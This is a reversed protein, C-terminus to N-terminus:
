GFPTFVFGNQITPAVLAVNEAQGSFDALVTARSVGANDIAGVWFNIGATEGARGLINEYLKSVFQLTTTNAGYKDVFETSNMFGAAIDVLSVGADLRSMWFGVGGEDPTRAFAAQYVRYAKGGNGDIDMALSVDGFKLREVNQLTDVGGAGVNDTVTVTTGSRSVTFNSRASAFQVTDIGAGGDIANNGDTAILLDTGTTGGIVSGFLASLSVLGDSFRFQEVNTYTDLGDTGGSLTVTGSTPQAATYSARTGNLVATDTGAGGNIIDNGGDGRLTDNNGTGTLTDAQQTGQLYRGGTTSNDGLGGKLGDGGYLWNLAALDYQNFTSYPGGVSTYSMVTNQTTDLNANLIPPEQHPHKLGLMHGIEHLLTEYGDGGATLNANQSGWEVNDLYVWADASYDVITDGATANTGSVGDDDMYNYSTTWACLGAVNSEVLNANAFHIDAATGDTTEVFKIGTIQEVYLMAARTAAQQASSFASINGTYSPNDADLQENGSTISFTFRLINNNAATIFNWDPGTDLLADIHQHGSRVTVNLDSYKTM